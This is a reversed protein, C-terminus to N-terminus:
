CSQVVANQAASELVSELSALHRVLSFRKANEWAGRCLHHHHAPDRLARLIAQAFGAPSPPNGPALEGTEGDILWDPIGGVDFAVTPKGLCGAELGVLGFPEPWVSPVAVLDVGRMLELQKATGIWGPFDVALDLKAALTKLENLEPGDGAITLSLKWGLLQSALPLARLLYEGGKLDTLRGIMIIKGRLPAAVPEEPQLPIDTAPLPVISLRQSDVRHKLFEDHMHQSAVLISAFRPLLANRHSERDFSRLATLPNLGGCRRPYHFLLCGIGFERSCPQMVPFAFCKRGTGCTGYYNHAFLVTPYHETLQQELAVSELGNLYVVEPGWQDIKAFIDADGALARISSVSGTPDISSNGASAPHEFLYALDHGQRRLEPLITRLYKEVGGVMGQHKNAILIKM